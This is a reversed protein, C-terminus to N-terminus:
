RRYIFTMHNWQPNSFPWGGQKCVIRELESRAMTAKGHEDFGVEAEVDADLGRGRRGRIIRDMNIRSLYLPSDAPGAPDRALGASVPDRVPYMFIMENWSAVEYGRLGHEHLNWNPFSSFLPCDQEQLIREFTSRRIVIHDFEDFGLTAEVAANVGFGGRARIVNDILLRSIYIAGVGHAAARGPEGLQRSPSADKHTLDELEKPKQRCLPCTSENQKSFWSALCKFHFVHACTMEVRGTTKADVADL